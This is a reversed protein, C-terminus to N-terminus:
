KKMFLNNLGDTMDPGDKWNTCKKCVSLGEVSNELLGKRYQAYKPSSYIEKLTLDKLNGFVDTDDFDRHCLTVKGDWNIATSYFPFVCPYRETKIGEQLELAGAFDHIGQVQVEDAIEKWYEIFGDIENITDKTKIIKARIFPKDLGMKNRQEFFYHANEIVKDFIDVGKIKYFIESTFADISLTIDDVGSALIRDIVGKDDINCNTNFHIIEAANKESAYKLMEPFQKHLTSEGDKHMNLVLLRKEKACEDIIKVFLEWEMFGADRKQYQKLDVSHSPCMFCRMNCLLTPEVNLMLPFSIDSGKIIEPKMFSYSGPIFFQKMRNEIKFM